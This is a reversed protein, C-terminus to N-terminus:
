NGKTLCQATTSEIAAEIGHVTVGLAMARAAAALIVQQDTMKVVELEEAKVTYRM